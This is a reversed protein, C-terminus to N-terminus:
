CLVADGCGLVASFTNRRMRHQEGQAAFNGGSLDIGTSPTQSAALHEAERFLEVWKMPQHALLGARLDSDVQRWAARAEQPTVKEEFIARSIANRLEVRNLQTLALPEFHRLMFAEAKATNADRLYLSVLFSTDAYTTM